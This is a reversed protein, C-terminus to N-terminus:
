KRLYLMCLACKFSLHGDQPADIFAFSSCFPYVAIGVGFVGYGIWCAGITDMWFGM